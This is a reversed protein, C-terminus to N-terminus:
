DPFPRRKVNQYWLTVIDQLSLLNTRPGLDANDFITTNQCVQGGQFFKVTLVALIKAACFALKQLFCFDFVCLIQIGAM